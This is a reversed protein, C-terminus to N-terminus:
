CWAFSREPLAVGRERGSGGSVEGLRGGTGMVRLEHQLLVSQARSRAVVHDCNRFEAIWVQDGRELAAQPLQLAAGILGSELRPKGRFSIRLLAAGHDVHQASVGGREVVHRIWVHRNHACPV